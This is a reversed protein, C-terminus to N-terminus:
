GRPFVLDLRVLVEDKILDDPKGPYNIGWQQRDITFEAKATVVKEAVDFAAPFSISAKKGVMELTGVVTHTADGKGGPKVSASTFSARPHEKVNFFDPSRLHKTLKPHDAELSNIDLEFHTATVKDGDLSVQGTYEGISGTHDGTIKAGVFEIKSKARDVSVGRDNPGPSKANKADAPKPTAKKAGKKAPAPESVEAAPKDDVQSECGATLALLCAYLLARSM